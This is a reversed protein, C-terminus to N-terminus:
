HLATLAEILMLEFLIPVDTELAIVNLAAFEPAWTKIFLVAPAAVAAREILLL